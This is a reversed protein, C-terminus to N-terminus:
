LFSGPTGHELELALAVLEEKGRQAQRRCRHPERQDGLKRRQAPDQGRLVAQVDVVYAEPTERLLPVMEDRDFKFNGEISPSRHGFVLINELSVWATPANGVYRPFATLHLGGESDTTLAVYSDKSQQFLPLQKGTELLLKPNPLQRLKPLQFYM